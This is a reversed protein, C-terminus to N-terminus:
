AQENIVRDIGKDISVKPRWGLKRLSAIDVDVNMAEDKRYPVAGFLLKTQFKSDSKQYFFLLREVFERVSIAQGTGVEFESFESLTENKDLVILFASVVDSVYIFDRKQKGSTLEIESVGKRLQSLFWAVFKSDDDKTGYMHEIKLNVVRVRKSYQRLWDVFHMKSLTYDNLYPQLFTDTNFFTDTNYKISADLIRTGFLVNSKVIEAIGCSDRGYRGATHIVVNIRQREFAMELPELDVDYSVVKNLFRQIRYIDSSSRKLIVVEYGKNLLAELLHSGLFGTAGTLLVRPLISM